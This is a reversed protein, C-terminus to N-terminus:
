FHDGCSCHGDIGFHHVRNADRVIIPHRRIKAILKIANDLIYVMYSDIVIYSRSVVIVM